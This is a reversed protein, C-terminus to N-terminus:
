TDFMFNPQHVHSPQLITAPHVQRQGRACSPTAGQTMSDFLGSADVSSM